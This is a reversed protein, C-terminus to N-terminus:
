TLLNLLTESNIHHGGNFKVLNFSPDIQKLENFQSKIKNEDFYADNDGVVFYNRSSKIIEAYNVSMDPPYVAAWLVFTDPKFNGLVYWRSATAGGQSFGLLIHKKFQHKIKIQEWLQNLYSVYDEIDQERCEKTMWSAGVRGSTGNLYFRHLGEPAVIFYDHENLVNFNRVFYDVLQGYGHLAIIITHATKPNGWTAYKATKSVKLFNLSM